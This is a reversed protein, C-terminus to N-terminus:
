FPIDDNEMVPGGYVALISYELFIMIASHALTTFTIKFFGSGKGATSYSVEGVPATTTWLQNVEIILEFSLHV